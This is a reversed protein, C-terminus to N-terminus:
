SIPGVVDSSYYNVLYVANLNTKEIGLEILDSHFLLRTYEMDDFNDCIAGYKKLIKEGIEEADDRLQRGVYMEILEDLWDYM